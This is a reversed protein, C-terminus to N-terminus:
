IWGPTLASRTSPWSHTNVLARVIKGLKKEATLDMGYKEKISEYVSQIYLQIAEWWTLIRNITSDECNVDANKAENIIEEFTGICHLRYPVIIDPLERHSTKCGKCV